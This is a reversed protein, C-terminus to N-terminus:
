NAFRKRMGLAELCEDLSFGRNRLYGAACRAGLQTFLTRAKIVLVFKHSSM